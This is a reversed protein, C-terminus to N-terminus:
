SNAAKWRATSADRCARCNRVPALKGRKKMILNAGTLAHGRKCVSQMGWGARNVNEKPTVVDLHAPNCCRRVRCLHDVQMGEPIAGRTREVVLRHTLVVRGTGDTTCGYGKSNLCGTWLWCGNPGPEVKGVRHGLITLASKGRYSLQCLVQSNILNDCTRARGPSSQAANM